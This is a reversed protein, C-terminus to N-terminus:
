RGASVQTRFKDTVPREFQDRPVTGIGFEVETGLGPAIRYQLVQVAPM